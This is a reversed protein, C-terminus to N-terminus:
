TSQVLLSLQRSNKLHEKFGGNTGLEVYVDDSSTGVLMMAVM